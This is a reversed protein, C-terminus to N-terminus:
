PAPTGTAPAPPETAATGAAAASDAAAPAPEAAKGLRRLERLGEVPWRIEGGAQHAVLDGELVLWLQGPGVGPLPADPKAKLSDPLALFATSDANWAPGKRPGVAVAYARQGRWDRGRTPDVKLWALKKLQWEVEAEGDVGRLVGRELLGAEVKLNKVERPEAGEVQVRWVKACGSLSGLGALLLLGVISGTRLSGALRVGRVSCGSGESLMSM